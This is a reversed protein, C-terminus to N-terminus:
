LGVLAGGFIATIIGMVFTIVITALIVAPISALIWKLCIEVAAGFSVDIAEVTVRQESRLFAAVEYGDGADDIIDADATVIGSAILSVMQAELYPGEYDQPRAAGEPAGGNRYTFLTPEKKMLDTRDIRFLDGM